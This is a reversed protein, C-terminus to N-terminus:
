RMAILTDAAIGTLALSNFRDATYEVKFAFPLLTDGCLYVKQDEHVLHVKLTVSSKVGVCVHKRCLLPQIMITRKITPFIVDGCTKVSQVCICM